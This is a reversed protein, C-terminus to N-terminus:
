KKKIEKIITVILGLAIIVYLLISEIKDSNEDLSSTIKDDIKELKKITEDAKESMNLSEEIEDYSINDKISDISIKSCYGDENSGEENSGQSWVNLKSEKAKNEYLCLSDTYEYNGYIYAVKGYGNEIIEKQLLNGDVWIWALTRGYKDTKSSEYEFVIEKANTLKKCTFDSAEKGFPEESVNTSVSEPTDIALFRFKEEKGDVIFYATDGDVCKSFTGKQITTSGYVNNIFLYCVIFIIVKKM